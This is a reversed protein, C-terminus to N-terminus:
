CARARGAFGDRFRHSFDWRADLRNLSTGFGCGYDAANSSRVLRRSRVLSVGRAVSHGRKMTRGCGRAHSRARLDRSDRESRSSRYACGDSEGRRYRRRVVVLGFNRSSDDPTAGSGLWALGARERDDEVRIEVGFRPALDRVQDVPALWPSDGDRSVGGRGWSGGRKDGSSGVRVRSSSVSGATQAHM